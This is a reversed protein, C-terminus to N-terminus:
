TLWGGWIMKLGFQTTFKYCATQHYTRFMIFLKSTMFNKGSSKRIPTIRHSNPISNSMIKCIFNAMKTITSASELLSLFLYESIKLNTHVYKFTLWWMSERIELKSIPIKLFNEMLWITKLLLWALLFWELKSFNEPFDTTSFETWSMSERIRMESNQIKMVNEVLWIITELILCFNIDIFFPPFLINNLINVYRSQKAMRVGPPNRISGYFSCKFCNTGSLVTQLLGHSHSWLNTCSDPPFFFSVQNSTYM